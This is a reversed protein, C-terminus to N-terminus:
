NSMIWHLKDDFKTLTESKEQDFFAFANAWNAAILQKEEDMLPFFVRDWFM